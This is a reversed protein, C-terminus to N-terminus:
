EARKEHLRGLLFAAEAGPAGPFRQRLALLAREALASDGTYRAADSLARLDIASCSALCGGVGRAEADRVIEKFKGQAIDQSWSTPRPAWRAIEPVKASAASADPAASPLPDSQATSAPEPVAVSPATAELELVQMTRRQADGRFRQGSRLVVPGSGSPGNVEVSGERLAVECTEHAPDWSLDFRTGIVNVEFPGAAFTWATSSTHVVAVSAQGRELLVRAGHANTEEIRLRSGPTAVISSADSFRVAVPASAPASLYKGSLEAGEVTFTLVRSRWFLLATVAVCGAAAMPLAWGLAGWSRRPSVLEADLRTLFRQRLLREDLNSGVQLAARRSLEAIREVLDDPNQEVM